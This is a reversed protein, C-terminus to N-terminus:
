EIREVTKMHRIGEVYMRYGGLKGRVIRAVYQEDPKLRRREPSPTTERWVQGNDTRFTGLERANYTTGVIRVSLEENDGGRPVAVDRVQEAGLGSPGADGPVTPGANEGDDGPRCDCARLAAELCAVYAQSDAEEARCVAVPDRAAGAPTATLGILVLILFRM